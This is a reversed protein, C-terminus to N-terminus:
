FAGIKLILNKGSNLVNPIDITMISIFKKSNVIENSLNLRGHYVVPYDITVIFNLNLLKEIITTWDHNIDFSRNAGLYIHNINERNAIEIIENYHKYGQVFLTKLGYAATHEVEVGTMYDTRINGFFETRINDMYYSERYM